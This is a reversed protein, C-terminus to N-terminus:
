DRQEPQGSKKEKYEKRFKELFADIEGSPIKARMLTIVHMADFIDLHHELKHVADRWLISQEFEELEAAKQMQLRLLALLGEYGARDGQELMDKKLPIRARTSRQQALTRIYGTRQWEFATLVIKQYYANAKAEDDATRDPNAFIVEKLRFAGAEIMELSWWPKASAWWYQCSPLGEALKQRVVDYRADQPLRYVYETIWRTFEWQTKHIENSEDNWSLFQKGSTTDDQSAAWTSALPDVDPGQPLSKILDSLHATQVSSLFDFLIQEHGARHHGFTEGDMATLLYGDRELDSGIKEKLSAFTRIAGSMIMNSVLRSRFFVAINTGRIKRVVDFAFGSEPIAVEDLVTWQFGLDKIADAVHRNYAMEPPFFGIPRYAPGFIKVHTEHNLRIQRLIEESPTLPLFPHYKASESVECQGREMLTRLTDLVDTYGHEILQDTLSGSINLTFKLSPRELFGNFLPRYSECVIRELIDEM